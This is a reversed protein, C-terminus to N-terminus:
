NGALRNELMEIRKLDDAKVRSYFRQKSKLWHLEFMIAKLLAPEAYKVSAAPFVVKRTEFKHLLGDAHLRNLFGISKPSIAGGVATKLGKKKAKVCSNRSIEFIKDNDVATRNLNMSGTLDVRGITMGQIVGINPLALMDDLNQVGTITELNFAFEIDERNDPPVIKEIMNAYKSLAFATEAMPAVIGAVGLQLASYIDTVAEVGGLKLIIPLGAAQTVDKLRMMEDMGSGEAEFEAKIEFVGFKEKLERLIGVMERELCNM